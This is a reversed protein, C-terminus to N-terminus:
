EIPNPNRTETSASWDVHEASLQEVIMM